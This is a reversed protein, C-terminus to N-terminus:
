LIIERILPLVVKFCEGDQISIPKKSLIKYKANLNKLGTGLSNEQNPKLIKPNSVTVGTEKVSISVLLPESINGQNHKVANEVLTQLAGPPILIKQLNGLKNLKEFKYAEGFREELLFIYNDIAQWEEELSVVDHEMNVISYRYIGSLKHLYKKALDTDLDILDDLANLNNFLFHPSMQSKLLNLEMAMKEKELQEVKRDHQLWDKTFRYAFSLFFAFSLTNPFGVIFSYRSVFVEEFSLNELMWM